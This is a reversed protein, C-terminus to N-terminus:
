RRPLIPGKRTFKFQATDYGSIASVLGGRHEFLEAASIRALFSSSADLGPAGPYRTVKLNLCAGNGAAACFEIIKDEGDDKAVSPASGQSIPGAGGNEAANEPLRAHCEEASAGPAAQAAASPQQLGVLLSRASLRPARM